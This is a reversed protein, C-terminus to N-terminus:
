GKGCLAEEESKTNDGLLGFLATEDRLEDDNLRSSHSPFTGDVGVVLVKFLVRKDLGERLLLFVDLLSAVSLPLKLLPNTTSLVGCRRVLLGLLLLLAVADRDGRVGGWLLFLAGADPAPLSQIFIKETGHVGM